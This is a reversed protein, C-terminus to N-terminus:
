KETGKEYTRYAQIQGTKQRMRNHVTQTWVTEKTTNVGSKNKSSESWQYITRSTPTSWTKEQEQKMRGMEVRIDTEECGLQQLKVIIVRLIDTDSTKALSIKTGGGIWKNIAQLTTERDTLYLLNKNDPHAELCERLTVLEPHNSSM